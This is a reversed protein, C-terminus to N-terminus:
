ACVRYQGRGNSRILKRWEAQSKFVDAMRTSSAGAERLVQKGSQWPRGARSADHLQKVVRAQLKGLFFMQGDVKVMGYDSSAELHCLAHNRLAEEATFQSEDPPVLRFLQEVADRVPRRVLLDDPKVALAPWDIAVSSYDLGNAAFHSVAAEGERLVTYADWSNLDQLGTFPAVTHPMRCSRGPEVEEWEGRELWVGFLKVSLKLKAEAVLYLLDARSLRWRETVEALTFYEKDILAM